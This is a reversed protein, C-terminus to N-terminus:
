QLDLLAAHVAVGEEAFLMTGSASASEPQFNLPRTTRNVFLRSEGELREIARKGSPHDVGQLAIPVASLQPKAEQASSIRSHLRDRARRARMARRARRASVLRDVLALALRRRGDQQVLDDRGSGHEALEDVRHM